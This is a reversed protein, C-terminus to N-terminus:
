IDMYFWETLNESIDPEEQTYETGLSKALTRLEKPFGLDPYETRRFLSDEMLFKRDEIDMEMIEERLEKIKKEYEKLGELHIDYAKNGGYNKNDLLLDHGLIISLRTHELVFYFYRDFINAKGIQKEKYLKEM